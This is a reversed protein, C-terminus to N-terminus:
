DAANRLREREQKHHEHHHKICLWRVELPKSYDDHHAQVKKKGCFECPKKVLVGSRIANDTLIHAARKVTNRKIYELKKANSLKRLIPDKKCKEAYEKRARVRKLLGSRLRDYERYYEINKLRNKRVSKKTCEKCTRGSYFGTESKFKNCVKCKKM